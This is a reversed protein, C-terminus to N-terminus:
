GGPQFVMLYIIVVISTLLIATAVIGRRDHVAAQLEASPAELPSAYATEGVRQAWPGSLTAGTIMAVAFVVYSAILWPRLLDIAGVVAAILGFILGVIFLIPIAMGIPKVIASVSQIGAVSGQRATAHLVVEPIMAAAVAAFMTLIHLYKFLEFPM